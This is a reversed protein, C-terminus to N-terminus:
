RCSFISWDSETFSTTLSSKGVYSSGRGNQYIRWTRGNYYTIKHYYKNSSVQSKGM